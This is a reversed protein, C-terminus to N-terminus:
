MVPLVEVCTLASQRSISSVMVSCVPDRCTDVHKTRLSFLIVKCIAVRCMEAHKTKFSFLIVNCVADRCMHEAKFSFLIVNCVVDSCMDVHETKSQVSRKMVSLRAVCTLMNQRSILCRMVPSLETCLTTNFSSPAAHCVVNLLVHETKFNFSRPLRFEVHTRDQFQLFTASSM